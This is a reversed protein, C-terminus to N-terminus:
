AGKTTGRDGQSDGRVILIFTYKFVYHFCDKSVHGFEVYM